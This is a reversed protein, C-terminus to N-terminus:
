TLFTFFSDEFVFPGPVPLEDVLRGRTMFEESDVATSYQCYRPRGRTFGIVDEPRRVRLRMFVLFRIIRHGMTDKGDCEAVLEVQNEAVWRLIRLPGDWDEDKVLDNVKVTGEMYTVRFHDLRIQCSHAKIPIIPDFSSPPYPPPFTEPDSPGYTIRTHASQCHTDAAPIPCRLFAFSLLLIKCPLPCKIFVWLSYFPVPDEDAIFDTSHFFDASVDSVEPVTAGTFASM